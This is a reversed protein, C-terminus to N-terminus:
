PAVVRRRFVWYSWGQYALVFPLLIGAVVTMTRLAYPSAVTSEVTLTWGPDLTSPVVAPFLAVFVTVVTLAIGLATGAFAWGDRRRWVAVLAAAVALVAGVGTVASVVDGRALQVYALFAVVAVVAVPGALRATRLARVQLVGTTRLALFVAGHFACLGLLAVAGSLGPWGDVVVPGGAYTGRADVPLGQVLTGLVAGWVVAPVFSGVAVAADCRRHWRVDDRKGRFELAVGRGVLAVLVALAPLYFASFLAAYWQPFVAFPLGVAVVLWVENGDWVPGITRLVAQRQGDTRGVFPSLMGVGFDFGELVLYGVWFFAVVAFWVVPIDM